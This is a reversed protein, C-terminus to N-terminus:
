LLTQKSQLVKSFFCVVWVASEYDKNMINDCHENCYLQGEPYVKAIIKRVKSLIKDM